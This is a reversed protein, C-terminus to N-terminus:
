FTIAKSDAGTVDNVQPVM